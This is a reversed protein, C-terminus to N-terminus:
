CSVGVLLVSDILIKNGHDHSERLHLCQPVSHFGLFFFDVRYSSAENLGDTGILVKVTLVSELWGVHDCVNVVLVFFLLYLSKINQWLITVWDEIVLTLLTLIDDFHFFLKNLSILFLDFFNMLIFYSAILTWLLHRVLTLVLKCFDTWKIALICMLLMCFHLHHFLTLMKFRFGFLLFTDWLPVLLM